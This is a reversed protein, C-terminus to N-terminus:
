NDNIYKFHKDIFKNKYLYVVFQFYCDNEASQKDNYDGSTILMGNFNKDASIELVCKFQGKNNQFNKKFNIKNNDKSKIKTIIEILISNINRISLKAHTEKIFFFNKFEKEEYYNIRRFDVINNNKFYNSTINKINLYENLKNIKNKKDNTFFLFNSNKECCFKKMKFYNKNNYLDTYVILNNCENINIGDELSNTSILVNIDNNNYLSLINLFESYQMVPSLVNSINKKKNLGIICLCKLKKKTLYKEIYKAVIRNYVFIITKKIKIESLKQLLFKYKYSIYKLHKNKISNQIKNLINDFIKIIEFNNKEDNKFNNKYNELLEIISPLEINEIIMFIQRQIKEFFKFNKDDSIISVIEQFKFNTLVNNYENFDRSKFKENIFNMYDGEFNKPLKNEDLNKIYYKLLLKFFEEKLIENLYNFNQIHKKDDLHSIEIFNNEEFNNIKDSNDILEKDIIFSCDLNECLNILNNKINIAKNKFPNSTFGYIKPLFEKIEINCKLYYFYFENMILNYPHLSECFNCDNFIIMNIDFIKIFGISLLKYLVDPLCIFLKYKNLIEKFSDINNKQKKGRKGQFYYIKDNLFDNIKLNNLLQEIKLTDCILYFVKSKEDSDFLNNILDISISIKEKENDTYIIFNSNKIHKSIQSKDKNIKINKINQEIQNFKSSNNTSIMSNENLYINNSKDFNKNLICNESNIEKSINEIQSKM